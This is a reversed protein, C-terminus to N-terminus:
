LVSLLEYRTFSQFIFDLQCSKLDLSFVLDSDVSDVDNSEWSFWQSKINILWQNSNWRFTNDWKRVFILNIALSETESGGGITKWDLLVAELSSKTVLNWLFKDNVSKGKTVLESNASGVDELITNLVTHVQDDLATKLLSCGGEDESWVKHWRSWGAQLDLWLSTVHEITGSKDPIVLFIVATLTDTLVVEGVNRIITIQLVDNDWFAKVHVLQSKVEWSIM